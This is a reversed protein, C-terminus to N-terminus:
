LSDSLFSAAYCACMRIVVSLSNLTANGQLIILLAFPEEIGDVPASSNVRSLSIHFIMKEHEKGM